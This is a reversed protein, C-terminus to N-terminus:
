KREEMSNKHLLEDRFHEVKYIIYAMFICAFIGSIVLLIMGGIMLLTSKLMISIMSLLIATVTGALAILTLKWIKRVRRYAEIKM